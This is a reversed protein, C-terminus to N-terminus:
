LRKLGPVSYVPMPRASIYNFYCHMIFEPENTVAVVRDIPPDDQIFNDSLTPRTSGFDESLHWVDLSQPDESRFKGTVLSPKYRYDAWAEQYGFVEENESAVTGMYIEKNLVAEEGLNAFTPWYFDYRTSRSFSRHLGRQYTLDARISCLGLIIGHETASYTFGGGNASVTGFAALNGQATTGTESTQPVSSINVPASGGGIYEPRQLRFDPSTVGFMSQVIETYRTGGRAELEMFQQVTIADRLSNITAGTAQSLDAYVEPFSPSADTMQIYNIVSDTRRWAKYDGSPNGATDGTQYPTIDTSSEYATSNVGIGTIPATLGLPLPLAEGRQPNPLCSTFYDHRKGRRRLPFHGYNDPGDGRNIIPSDQLAQDRYWDRYILNYARFPLASFAYSLTVHTPLGLYDFITESNFGTSLSTVIPITYDISDGPDDQAGCFKEWNDWLLRNPVFFFHYDLYINDMVPHIPTAMRAFISPKLTHTDGPLVEDYFFPVLWGGNLTTKHTHSRDFMARPTQVNPLDSFQHQMVSRPM